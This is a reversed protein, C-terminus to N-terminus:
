RTFCWIYVVGTVATATVLVTRVRIRKLPPPLLFAESLVASKAASEPGIRSLMVNGAALVDGTGIVDGASFEQTGDDSTPFASFHTGAAPAGTFSSINIGISVYEFGSLNVDALLGGTGIASFPVVTQDIRM